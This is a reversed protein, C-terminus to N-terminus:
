KLPITDLQRFGNKDIVAITVGFGGSAIDRGVAARIARTVLEVGQDVTMNEKYQDELV